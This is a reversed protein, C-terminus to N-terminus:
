YKYEDLCFYVADAMYDAVEKSMEETDEFELAMTMIGKSGLKRELYDYACQCYTIQGPAEGLCGEIVADEIVSPNAQESKEILSQKFTDPLVYDDESDFRDVLNSVISFALLFVLVTVLGWGIKGAIDYKKMNKNNSEILIFLYILSM